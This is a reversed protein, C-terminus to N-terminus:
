TKKRTKPENEVRKRSDQAKEVGPGLPWPFGKESKKESNELSFGIQSRYFAMSTAVMPSDSVAM